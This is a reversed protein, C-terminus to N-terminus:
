LELENWEQSVSMAQKKIEPGKLKGKYSRPRSSVLKNRVELWSSGHMIMQPDRGVDLDWKKWASPSGMDTLTNTSLIQDSGIRSTKNRINTSDKTTNGKDVIDNDHFIELKKSIPKESTSELEIKTSSSSTSSLTLSANNPLQYSPPLGHRIPLIDSVKIATTIEQKQETEALPRTKPVRSRQKKVSAKKTRRHRAAHRGAREERDAKAKEFDARLKSEKQTTLVWPHRLVINFDETMRNWFTIELATNRFIDFKELLLHRGNVWTSLRGKVRLIVGIEIPRTDFINNGLWSCGMWGLIHAPLPAGKLIPPGRPVLGTKSNQHTPIDPDVVKKILVDVLEGSSDDLQVIWVGLKTNFSMDIVIGCIQIFPLPHNLYHFLPFTTASHIPSAGTCGLGPHSAGWGPPIHLKRILSAPIKIWENHLPHASHTYSPYYRLSALPIEKTSSEINEEPLPMAYQFSAKDSLFLIDCRSPRM